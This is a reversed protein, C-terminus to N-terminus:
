MNQPLHFFLVELGDYGYHLHESLSCVKVANSIGIFLVSCYEFSYFICVGFLRHLIRLYNSLQRVFPNSKVRTYMMLTRMRTTDSARTGSRPSCYWKAFTKQCTARKVCWQNKAGVSRSSMIMM